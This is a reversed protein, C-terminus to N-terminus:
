LCLRNRTFDVNFDGGVIVHCDLDNNILEEVFCLQDILDATTGKMHCIYM